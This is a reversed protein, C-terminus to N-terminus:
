IYLGIGGVIILVKGRNMIDIILDEVLWKFEYVLFIDDFNLIDILYYLIGDMEEFIVKVIGINM